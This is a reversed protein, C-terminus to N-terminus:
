DEDGAGNDEGSPAGSGRKGGRRGTRYTRSPNPPEDGDMWRGRFDAGDQRFFLSRRSGPIGGDGDRVVGGASSDDRRDLPGNREGPGDPEGRAARRIADANDLSDVVSRADTNRIENEKEEGVRQAELIDARKRSTLLRGLVKQGLLLGLLIGAGLAMFAIKINNWLKEM